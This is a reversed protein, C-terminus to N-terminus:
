RPGPGKIREFEGRVDATELVLHVAGTRHGQRAESHLGISLFGADAGWGTSAVKM